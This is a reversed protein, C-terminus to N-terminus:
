SGQITNSLQLKRNKFKLNGLFFFFNNQIKGVVGGDVKEGTEDDDEHLIVQNAGYNRRQNLQAM